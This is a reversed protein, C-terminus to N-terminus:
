SRKWSLKCMGKFKAKLDRHGHFVEAAARAIEPDRKAKGGSLNHANAEGRAVELDLLRDLAYRCDGDEIGRKASNLAARATVVALGFAREHEEPSSGFNMRRRRRKAM